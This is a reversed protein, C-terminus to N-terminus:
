KKSDRAADYRRWFEDPSLPKRQDPAFDVDLEELSTMARVAELGKQIRDPTLILRSLALSKLPTLDSVPTGAIHLRKLTPHNALPSLDTVETDALTLSVLPVDKLAAIDKLPCGNLWLMQLPMGKLPGLDSVKTDVLNLEAIPLGALGGLDSVPANSLYVKELPMGRLPALDAVRTDELYLERLPMGALPTLDQVKCGRLDLALLPLGKLPSIDAVAPDNIALARIQGRDTQTGVQGSFGPNKALIADELTAPPAPTSASPSPSDSAIPEQVAGAAVPSPTVDSAPPEDNSCGILSSVALSMVVVFLVRIM